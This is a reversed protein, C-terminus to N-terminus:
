TLRVYGNFSVFLTIPFNLTTGTIFAWTITPVGGVWGPPATELRVSPTYIVAGDATNMGVTASVPGNFYMTPTYTSNVVAFTPVTTFVNIYGTANFQLTVIGSLTVHTWTSGDTAIM